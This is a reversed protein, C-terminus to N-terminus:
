RNNVLTYLKLLHHKVEVQPTLNAWSLSQPGTLLILKKKKSKPQELLESIIVGQYPRNPEDRWSVYAYTATLPNVHTLDNIYCPEQIM